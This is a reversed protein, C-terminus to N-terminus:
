QKLIETSTGLTYIWPFTGALSVMFMLLAAVSYSDVYDKVTSIIITLFYTSHKLLINSTTHHMLYVELM